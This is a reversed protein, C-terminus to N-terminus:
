LKKKLIKYADAYKEACVTMSYPGYSIAAMRSMEKVDSENMDLYAKMAKYYSDEDISESLFGNIGNNIVDVIGGVPTCIPIAGVGLAEILSIPFGEYLSCLGYAGAEKLYELPNNREGLIYCCSPMESKLTELYDTQHPAGIFLVSFDYGESALRKAVKAMLVQNKVKDVHALNVIIRTSRSKRYHKFENKVSESIIIDNPVNRGNKIMHATFGYFEEFSHLSAHSITIPFVRNTKFLSRRVLRSMWDSAEVYAENHVTHIGKLYFLNILSTYLIARLHTHIIDPRNRLIFLSLRLFLLIDLGNKKNMSVVKVSSSVQPLYFNYRTDDLPYLVCLFVEHGMAALENSLDVAFREAGGSSLQPIVQIIKM